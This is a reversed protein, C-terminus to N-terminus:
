QKVIEDPHPATIFFLSIQKRVPAGIIKGDTRRHECRKLRLVAVTQRRLVEDVLPFEMDGMHRRGPALQIVHCKYITKNHIEPLTQHFQHVAISLLRVYEIVVAPHTQFRIMVMKLLETKVTQDFADKGAILGSEARSHLHFRM